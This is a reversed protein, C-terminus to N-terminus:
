RFFVPFHFVTHTLPCLLHFCSPLQAELDNKWPWALYGDKGQKSSEDYNFFLFLFLLLWFLGCLSSPILVDQEWSRVRQSQAVVQM